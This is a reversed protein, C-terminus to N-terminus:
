KSPKNLERILQWLSIGLALLPLSILFLPFKFGLMKDLKIGGWTGIAMLAMLQTGLGAYKMWNTNGPTKKNNTKEEM